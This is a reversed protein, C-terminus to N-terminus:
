AALLDGLTVKGRLEERITSVASNPNDSGEVEFSFYFLVRRKDSANGGGCHLLRSDFVTADGSGLTAVGHPAALAAGGTEGAERFALHASATHSGPIFVTPGMDSEVDQLAVFSTVVCRDRRYNTDPHVPQRASGPDSVLAAFECLRAKEGGTARELFPRM